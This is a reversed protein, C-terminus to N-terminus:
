LHIDCCFKENKKIYGSFLPIINLQLHDFNGGFNANKCYYIAVVCVFVLIEFLQRKYIVKDGTQAKFDDWIRRKTKACSFREFARVKPSSDASASQSPSLDIMQQSM